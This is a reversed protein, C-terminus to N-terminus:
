RYDIFSLGARINIPYTSMLPQSSPPIHTNLPNVQHCGGGGGGESVGVSFEWLTSATQRTTEGM